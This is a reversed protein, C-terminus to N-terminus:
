WMTQMDTQIQRSCYSGPNIWLHYFLVTFTNWLVQLALQSELPIHITYLRDGGPHLCWVYGSGVFRTCGPILSFFHGKIQSHLHLM